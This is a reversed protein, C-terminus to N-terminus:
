GVSYIKKVITAVSMARLATCLQYISVLVKRVGQRARTYKAIYEYAFRLHAFINCLYSYILLCQEYEYM